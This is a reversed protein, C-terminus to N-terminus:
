NMEAASAWARGPTPVKMVPVNLSAVRADWPGSRGYGTVVGYVLRPNLAACDGPGLGIREMVGALNRKNGTALNDLVRVREGRELLTHTLASGIFGAGGTVLYTM